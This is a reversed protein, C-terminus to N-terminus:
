RSVGYTYAVVGATEIGKDHGSDRLGASSNSFFNCSFYIVLGRFEM